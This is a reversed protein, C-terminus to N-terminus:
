RHLRSLCDASSAQQWRLSSQGFLTARAGGSYRGFIPIGIAHELHGVGLALTMERIILAEATSRFSDHDPETVANFFNSSPQLKLERVEQFQTSQQAGDSVRITKFFREPPSHGLVLDDASHKTWARLCMSPFTFAKQNTLLSSLLRRRTQLAIFTRYSASAFV